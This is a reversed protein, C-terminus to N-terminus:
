NGDEEGLGFFSFLEEVTHIIYDARYEELEHEPAFGYAVGLCAIGCERAGLIDHMRDGVMISEPKQAETIHMRRFVERIVDAKKNRSGDLTSGVVEDFYGEIGFHELIRKSYEEPKSTAIAVLFGKKKLASLVQEIGDYPKNEYLGVTGYRERYKEVAQMAEDYNMGAFAQFSEILPPGIFQMLEEEPLVPKCVAELAYRVSNLIGAKSDTITGDLDFLVYKWSM